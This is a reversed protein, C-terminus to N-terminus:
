SYKSCLMCRYWGKRIGGWLPLFSSLYGEASPNSIPPSIFRFRSQASSVSSSPLRPEIAGERESVVMPAQRASSTGGEPIAASYEQLVFSNQQCGWGQVTSYWGACSFGMNFSNL